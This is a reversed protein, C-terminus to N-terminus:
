WFLLGVHRCLSHTHLIIHRALRALLELKLMAWRWGRVDPGVCCRHPLNSRRGAGTGGLPFIGQVSVLLLRYRFHPGRVLGAGPSRRRPIGLLVREYVRAIALRFGKGLGM